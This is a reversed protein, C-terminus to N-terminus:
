RRAGSLCIRELRDTERDPKHLSNVFVGVMWHLRQSCDSLGVALFYLYRNSRELNRRISNKKVWQQPARHEAGSPSVSVM